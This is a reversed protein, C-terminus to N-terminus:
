LDRVGRLELRRRAMRQEQEWLEADRANYESQSWPRTPVSSSAM